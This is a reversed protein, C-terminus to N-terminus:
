ENNTNVNCKIQGKAKSLCGMQVPIGISTKLHKGTNQM